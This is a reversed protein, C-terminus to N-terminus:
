IMPARDEPPEPITAEKHQHKEVRYTDTPAAESLESMPQTCLKSRRVITELLPLLETPRDLPDQYLCQSVLSDWDYHYEPAVQSPMRFIGEPFQGTMLYYALVGFAYIDAPIGVQEFRKQEPALFAYSQLFSHSLKTLKKGGIPISLYREEVGQASPLAGLAETMAKFTGMVVKQASIINALGFDSIFVNIGLSGQGILINNLKLARHVMNRKIHAYDLAEAIQRMLSLLEEEKFREKKGSMYQALNTTEGHADLICDAVLFYSNQAFSVTHIKVIHPHDLIAITAVEEEFREVFGRDQCLEQPLVKLAYHRKIFRHEALLVSGLAGVGIQKLIRYDGLIQEQM